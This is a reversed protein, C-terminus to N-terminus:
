WWIKHIDILVICERLRECVFICAAIYSVDYDSYLCIRKSMYVDRRLYYSALSRKEEKMFM